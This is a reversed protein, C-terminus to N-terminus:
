NSKCGVSDIIVYFEFRSGTYGALKDVRLEGYEACYSVPTVGM